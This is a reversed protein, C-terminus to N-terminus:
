SQAEPHSAVFAVMEEARMFRRLALESALARLAMVNRSLLSLTVDYADQLDQEVEAKLKADTELLALAEQVTGRFSLTDGLGFSMRRAASLVTAQGLDSPIGGGAGSNAMGTLLEDAARGAMLITLAQEIVSVTLVRPLPKLHTVGRDVDVAILRDSDIPASSQGRIPTWHQGG